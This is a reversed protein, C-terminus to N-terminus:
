IIYTTVQAVGAIINLVFAFLLLVNVWTRNKNNKESIYILVMLLALGFSSLGPIMKKTILYVVSSVLVVLAVIMTTIELKKNKM